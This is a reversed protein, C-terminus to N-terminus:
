ASSESSPQLVVAAQAVCRAFLALDDWPAPPGTLLAGGSARIGGDIMLNDVLGFEEVAMGDPDEWAGDARRRLRPGLAALVRQAFDGAVAAYGFVPRGLGRMFGVEFVTGADASPGRFPTLNAILADCDRLHAENQAYIRWRPETEAGAGPHPDTPFVGELGHRACIAKKAAAIAAADALFVEPGALYVRM